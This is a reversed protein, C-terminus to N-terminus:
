SWPAKVASFTSMSSKMSCVASRVASAWPIERSSATESPAVSSGCRFRQRSSVRISLSYPLAIAYAADSVSHGVEHRACNNKYLACEGLRVRFRSERVRVIVSKQNSTRKKRLRVLRAPGLYGSASTLDFSKESLRPSSRGFTM